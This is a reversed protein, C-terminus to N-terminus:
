RIKHIKGNLIARDHAKSHIFTSNISQLTETAKRKVHSEFQKWGGLGTKSNEDM